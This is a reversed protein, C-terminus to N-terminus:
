STTPNNSVQPKAVWGLDLNFPKIVTDRSRQTRLSASMCIREFIAPTCPLALAERNREESHSHMERHDHSCYYLSTQNLSFDLDSDVYLFRVTERLGRKVAPEELISLDVVQAARPGFVEVPTPFRISDGPPLPVTTAELGLVELFSNAIADQSGLYEKFEPDDQVVKDRQRELYHLFPCASAQYQECSSDLLFNKCYKSTGFSCKLKCRESIVFGNLCQANDTHSPKGESGPGRACCPLVVRVCRM